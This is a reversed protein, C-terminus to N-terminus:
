HREGQMKLSHGKDEGPVRGARKLVNRAEDVSVYRKHTTIQFEYEIKDERSKLFPNCNPMIVNAGGLAMARYQGNDPDLTAVTNAAAMHTNGTVIRTLAFVRLMLEMDGAAEDRLPTQAHPIFPGINIMDPQFEQFFLIDECLDDLTQGPLGVINGVGVQFGLERLEDIAHLRDELRLGSRMRSYLEPNMTEHKMLYREAGADRFAALDDRSRKGLSLTIAVDAGDLIREIISCLMSRTYYPDEGSQLVVTRLGAEAIAMATDVIEDETMRFRKCQGNDKLLGCYLDNCRCYNSFHVVGRLQATDGVRERRVRDAEAFLAEQGAHDGLRERITQRNM